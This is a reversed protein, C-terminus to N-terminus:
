PVSTGSEVKQAEDNVFTIKPESFEIKLSKNFDLITLPIQIFYNISVYKKGNYVVSYDRFNDSVFNIFFDTNKDPSGMSAAIDRFIDINKDYYNRFQDVPVLGGQREMRNFDIPETVVQLNM